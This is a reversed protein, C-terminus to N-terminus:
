SKGARDQKIIFTRVLELRDLMAKMDALRRAPDQHCCDTILREIPVALEVAVQQRLESMTKGILRLCQPSVKQNMDTPIPQGTLVKFLTAGLGFVDTRPYLKERNVQEPAIYDITGQIRTKSTGLECAQGYDILKIRKQPTILINGPKVDAHVFGAHHMAQLGAAAKSFYGLLQPLKYSFEPDNM